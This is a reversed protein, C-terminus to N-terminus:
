NRGIIGVAEGRPIEFDVSRLADFTEYDARRLPHRIFEIFAETARNNSHKHSIRYSKSLDSVAIATSNRM